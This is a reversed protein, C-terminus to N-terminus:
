KSAQWAFKAKLFDAPTTRVRRLWTAQLQADDLAQGETIKQSNQSKGKQDNVINDPDYAESSEVGRQDDSVKMHDRRAIALQKNEVADKMGPHFGLARDYSAIAHDYQGLMFWADGTNFAGTTGTVRAFTKAASKFDGDRYQAIGIRFPDSYIKAAEAYRQQRMLKDGRQDANTWFNPNILTGILLAIAFMLVVIFPRKHKM